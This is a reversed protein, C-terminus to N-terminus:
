DKDNVVDDVLSAIKVAAAAIGVVAAAIGIGTATIIIGGNAQGMENISLENTRINMKTEEKM